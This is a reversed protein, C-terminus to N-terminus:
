AARQPVPEDRDPLALLAGLRAGPLPRAGALSVVADGPRRGRRRAALRTDPLLAAAARPPLAGDVRPLCGRRRQPRPAARDRDRRSHQMPWRMLVSVAAACFEDTLAGLPRTSRKPGM